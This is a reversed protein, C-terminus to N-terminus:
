STEETNFHIDNVEIGNVLAADRIEEYAHPTLVIEGSVWASGNSISANKSIRELFQGGLNTMADLVIFYSEHIARIDGATKLIRPDHDIGLGNIDAIAQRIRLQTEILAEREELPEAVWRRHKSDDNDFARDRCHKFFQLDKIGPTPDSVTREPFTLTMNMIATAELTDEIDVIPSDEISEMLAKIAARHKEPLSLSKIHLNLLDLLASKVVTGSRTMLASSLFSQLM